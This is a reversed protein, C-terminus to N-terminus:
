SVNNVLAEIREDKKRELIVTSSHRMINDGDFMAFSYDTRCLNFKDAIEAYRLTYKEEYKKWFGESGTCGGEGEGIIILCDCNENLLQVDLDTDCEIWSAIILYPKYRRAAAIADIREVPFLIPIEWQFNDTAIINIGEEKLWKTLLGDGACVELVLRDGVLKRIECALESIYEKNWFQFRYEKHSIGYIACSNFSLIFDRVTQYTPMETKQWIFKDAIVM